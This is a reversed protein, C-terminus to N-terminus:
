LQNDCADHNSGFYCFGNSLTTNSNYFYCCKTLIIGMALLRTRTYYQKGPGDHLRDLVPTAWKPSRAFVVITRIDMVAMMCHRLIGSPAM